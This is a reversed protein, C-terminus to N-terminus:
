SVGFDSVNDTIKQQQQLPVEWNTCKIKQKAMPQEESTKPDRIRLNSNKNPLRLTNNSTKPNENKNETAATTKIKQPKIDNKWLATGMYIKIIDGDNQLLQRYKEDLEGIDADFIRDIDIPNLGTDKYMEQLVDETLANFLSITGCEIAEVFEEDKIEEEDNTGHEKFHNFFHRTVIRQFLRGFNIQNSPEMEPNCKPLRLVLNGKKQTERLFFPEMIPDVRDVIVLHRVDKDEDMIKTIMEIENKSQKQFPFDIKYQLGSDLKIWAGNKKSLKTSEDVILAFSTVKRNELSYGFWFKVSVQKKINEPFVLETQHLFTTRVNDNTGLQSYFSKVNKIMREVGEFSNLFMTTSSLSPLLNQFVSDPPIENANNAGIIKNCGAVIEDVTFFWNNKQISEIIDVLAHKFDPNLKSFSEDISNSYKELFSNSHHNIIKCLKEKKIKEKVHLHLFQALLNMNCKYKFFWHYITVINAKVAEFLSTKKITFIEYKIPLPCQEQPKKKQITGNCNLKSSTGTSKDTSSPHPVGYCNIAKSWFDINNNFKFFAEKALEPLCSPDQRVNKLISLVKTMWHIIAESSAKRDIFTGDPTHKLVSLYIGYTPIYRVINRVRVLTNNKGKNTFVENRFFNALELFAPENLKKFKACILNFYAAVEKTQDPTFKNLAECKYNQSIFTQPHVKPTEAKSKPLVCQMRCREQINLNYTKSWKDIETDFNKFDTMTEDDFVKQGNRIKKLKELISDAIVKIRESSIKPDVMTGNPMAHQLSLLVVDTTVFHLIQSFRKILAESVGVINKFYNVLNNSSGKNSGFYYNIVAAINM